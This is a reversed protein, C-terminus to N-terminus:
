CNDKVSALSVLGKFAIELKDQDFCVFMKNFCEYLAWSILSVDKKSLSDFVLTKSFILIKICVGGM